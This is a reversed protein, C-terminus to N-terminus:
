SSRFELQALTHLPTARLLYQIAVAEARFAMADGGLLGVVEALREVAPTARSTVAELQGEVKYGSRTLLLTMEQRTYFRLHTRDLIGANAYSFRGQVLLPMLVSEHRVNPISCVLMGDDRLYRRLHM